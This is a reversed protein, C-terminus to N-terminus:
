LLLAVVGGGDSGPYNSFSKVKIGNPCRFDGGNGADKIFEGALEKSFFHEAGSATIRASFHCALVGMEHSSIAGDTQFHFEYDSRGFRRTNFRSTVSRVYSLAENSHYIRYITPDEVKILRCCPEEIGLDHKKLHSWNTVPSPDFVYAAKIGKSLYSMQQAIGGGLSHGTIYIKTEHNTEHLWKVVPLIKERALRYESPEIGFVASLNSGWDSIVQSFMDNETGRISIIAEDYIESQPSKHVYTQYYLGKGAFCADINEKTQTLAYWGSKNLARYFAAAKESLNGYNCAIETTNRDSSEDIDKRYVLKSLVAMMAFRNISEQADIRAPANDVIVENANQPVQSSGRWAGLTSIAGCGSLLFTITMVAVGYSIHKGVNFGM